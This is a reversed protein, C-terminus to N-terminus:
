YGLGVGVGVGVGAHRQLELMSASVLLDRPNVALWVLETYTGSRHPVRDRVFSLSYCRLFNHLDGEPGQTCM